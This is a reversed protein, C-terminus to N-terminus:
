TLDIRLNCASKLVFQVRTYKQNKEIIYCSPKSGTVAVIRPQPNLIDQKYAFVVDLTSSEKYWAYNPSLMNKGTCNDFSPQGDALDLTFNLFVKEDAPLEKSPIQRVTPQVVLRWIWVALLVLALGVCAGIMIALPVGFADVIPSTLGAYGGGGSPIIALMFWWIREALSLSADAKEVKSFVM